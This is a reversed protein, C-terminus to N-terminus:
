LVQGLALESPELLVRENSRDLGVRVQLRRDLEVVATLDDHALEEALDSREVDLVEHFEGASPVEVPGGERLDMLAGLLAGVAGLPALLRRVDRGLAAM